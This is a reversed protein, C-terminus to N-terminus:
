GPIFFVKKIEQFRPLPPPVLPLAIANQRPLIPEFGLVIRKVLFRFLLFFKVLDDLRSFGHLETPISSFTLSSKCTQHLDDQRPHKVILSLGRHSSVMSIITNVCRALIGPRGLQSCSYVFTLQDIGVIQVMNSFFNAECGVSKRAKLIGMKPPCM